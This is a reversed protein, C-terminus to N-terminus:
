ITGKYHHGVDGVIEMETSIDVDAICIDNNLNYMIMIWM